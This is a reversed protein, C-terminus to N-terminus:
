RRTTPSNPAFARRAEARTALLAAKLAEIDDPLKEPGDGM